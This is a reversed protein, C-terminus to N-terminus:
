RKVRRRYFATHCNTQPSPKQSHGECPMIKVGLACSILLNHPSPSPLFRFSMTHAIRAPAHSRVSVCSCVEHDIVFFFDVPSGDRHPLPQCFSPLIRWFTGWNKVQEKAIELFVFLNKEFIEIKRSLIIVNATSLVCSVKKRATNRRGYLAFGPGEGRRTPACSRQSVSMRSGDTGARRGLELRFPTPMKKHLSQAYLCSRTSDEAHFYPSIGLSILWPLLPFSLVRETM